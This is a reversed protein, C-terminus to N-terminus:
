PVLISFSIENAASAPAGSNPEMTAVTLQTEDCGSFPGSTVETSYAYVTALASSTLALDVSALIAVDRVELDAAPTLCYAGDTGLSSRSVATFGPHPGVFTPPASSSFANVLAYAKATGKAGAPGQSGPAGPEGVPGAPGPQGAAGAAGPAGTPGVPGREGVPISGAAFDDSTLSGNKVKSGTVANSAIDSTGVAGTKLQPSGVSNSPLKVAAYSTGGLAVILAMTSTVNAYKSGSFVRM